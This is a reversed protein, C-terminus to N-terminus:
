YVYRFEASAFLTQCLTGWAQEQASQSKSDALSQQFERVFEIAREREAGSAPRSLALRYALDARAAEDMDSQSLIRKAAEGAREMVFPSNMMYLAQTAVTTVERQGVVNNPDAVDFVTLMEPVVGRLIPLYVSRYKREALVPRLNLGRGIEGGGLELTASAEPRALDLQGSAALLADRLSEADLRRRSARWLLRNGPDVAYNAERHDSSLQYTRSLVISRITQKVSWGGDMFQIALNDLLEPHTPREGLQGFTDTTEVIGGGFLHHWIRNVMVRATTPNDRSTLWQALELRGSKSNDITPESGTKLVTVFGRPVEPGLDNVEGRICIRCNAPRGDSAAM